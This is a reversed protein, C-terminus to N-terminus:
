EIQRDDGAMTSAGRLVSLDIAESVRRVSGDAFLFNAGQPHDSRFGSTTHLGLPRGDGKWDRSRRCTMLDRLPNEIQVVTRVVPSKNLPDMTSAFISSAICGSSEMQSTNPPAAWANNAESGPIAAIGGPEKTLPWVSGGAGEGMAITHSLGDAVDRDRAVFSLGSVRGRALTEPGSADFMGREDKPVSAARFCWGDFVGKCFVYDTVALRSGIRFLGRLAPVEVPNDHSSSPCLFLGIPRDVIGLPQKSWPLHHQYDSVAITEGVHPALLVFGTAYLKIEAGLTMPQDFTPNASRNGFCLGPPYSAFTAHYQHLGLGLQKLHSLCSARRSEERAAQIAPLLLACLVGVIFIVVLLEILTLGRRAESAAQLPSSQLRAFERPLPEQIRFTSRSTRLLMGVIWVTSLYAVWDGAWRYVSIREDIPISASFILPPNFPDTVEHVVSGNGDIVASYGGDVARVIARRCEIARMCSMQHLVRQARLTADASEFGSCVLFQPPAGANMLSRFFRPVGIDGCISCAFTHESNDARKCRFRPLRTGKDFLGPASWGLKSVPSFELFPTLNVKDYSGEYGNQPSIVAVSNYRRVRALSRDLRACGVVLATNLRRSQAILQQWAQGNAVTGPGDTASRSASARETESELEFEGYAGEGWVMLGPRKTESVVASFPSIGLRNTAAVVAVQLDADHLPQHLRWSGYLLSIAVLGGAVIPSAFAQRVSTSGDRSLPTLRTLLDCLAGNVMAVLFGIAYVGGIDAIQVIRLWGTQTEGVRLLPFSAGFVVTPAWDRLFEITIWLCPLLVALPASSRARIRRGVVLMLLWLAGGLLGLLIWAAALAGGFGSGHFSTRIADLGVLYYLVGGLFGGLYAELVYKRVGLCLGLPVLGIWAM